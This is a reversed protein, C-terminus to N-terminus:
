NKAAKELDSIMELLAFNIRSCIKGFRDDDILNMGFKRQADSYEASHTSLQNRVDDSINSTNGALLEIAQEIKGDEISKRAKQAVKALIYSQKLGRNRRRRIFFFLGLGLALLGGVGSLLLTLNTKNKVIVRKTFVPINVPYEKNDNSVVAKIVLDLPYNGEKLPIVSWQWTATFDQENLILQEEAGRPTIKFNEELVDNPDKLEARMFKGIKIKQTAIAEPKIRETPASAMEATQEKIATMKIKQNAISVAVISRQGVLMSDPIKYAIVGQALQHAKQQLIVEKQGLSDIKVLLSDREKSLEQYKTIIEKNISDTQRQLKVYRLYSSDNHSNPSNPLIIEELPTNEIKVIASRVSDLRTNLRLSDNQLLVKDIQINQTLQEETYILTDPFTNTEESKDKPAKCNVILLLYGVLFLFNAISFFRNMPLEKYLVFKFILKKEM